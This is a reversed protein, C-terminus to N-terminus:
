QSLRKELEDIRKELEFQKFVNVYSTLLYTIDKATQNEVAGIQLDFILRSLLRRASKLSNVKIPRYSVKVDKNKALQSQKSNDKGSNKKLKLGSRNFLNSYFHKVKSNGPKM